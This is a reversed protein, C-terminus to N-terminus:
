HTAMLQLPAKRQYQICEGPPDLIFNRADKGDTGLLAPLQRVPKLVDESESADRHDPHLLAAWQLRATWQARLELRM